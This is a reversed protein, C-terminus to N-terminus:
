AAMVKFAVDRPPNVGLLDFSVRQQGHRRIEPAAGAYFIETLEAAEEPSAFEVFMEGAFSLYRYGRAELWSVNNPWVIAVRGGPKCVREMEALGADGGRGPEPTFASCAIVVDAWNDPLPLDDFFGATVRVRDGHEARQLKGALIERLPRAPEVAVIERARGILELTCRGTGAGVEVVRDVGTPLWRILARHLREASALRDYLEPELRYLLEWALAADVQPDGPGAGVFRRAEDASLAGLDAVTYRTRLDGARGSM